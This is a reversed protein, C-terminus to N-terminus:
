MELAYASGEEALPLAVQVTTGRGLASEITLRGGHAAATRWAIALGLGAREPKTSYFPEFVRDLAGDPIGCGTDAISIMADDKVMVGVDIRGNAETAQVANILLNLFLQELADRDGHVWIPALGHPPQEVWVRRETADVIATKLAARLPNWLDLRQSALRGSRALRLTDQLTNALRHLERQARELPAHLPSDIHLHGELSRMASRASAVSPSLERALETAFDGVAAYAQRQSIERSSREARNVLARVAAGVEASENPGSQVTTSVARGPLAKAAEDIAERLRRAQRMAWWAVASTSGVITCGLVVLWSAITGDPPPALDFLGLVLVGGLLGALGGCSAVIAARASLRQLRRAGIV